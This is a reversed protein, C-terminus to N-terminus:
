GPISTAATLKDSAPGEKRLEGYSYRRTAFRYGSFLGPEILSPDELQDWVGRTKLYQHVKPLRWQPITPYLHHELHYNGGFHLLTFIPSVRSRTDKFQGTTTQNHEVFSRIGSLWSGLIGPIAFGIVFMGPLVSDIMLYIALWMGAFVFNLWALHRMTARSMPNKIKSLEAPIPRSSALMLTRAFYKRNARFRQLFFRSWFTKYHQLLQLDPDDKTNTLKHHTWHDLAMGSQFFVITMASFLLGLVASVLRSKHLGFHFGEHGIFGMLHVANGGLLAGPVCALAKWWWALDTQMIIYYNALASGSFTLLMFGILASGGLLSPGFFEDPLSPKRPSRHLPQSADM